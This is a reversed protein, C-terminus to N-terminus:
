LEDQYLVPAPCDRGVGGLLKHDESHLRVLWDLSAMTVYTLPRGTHALLAKASHRTSRQATSGLSLLLAAHPM